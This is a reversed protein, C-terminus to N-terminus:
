EYLGHIRIGTYRITYKGVNENMKIPDMYPYTLTRGPVRGMSDTM